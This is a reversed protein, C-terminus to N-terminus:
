RAPFTRRLGDQLGIGAKFGLLAEANDVAYSARLAFLRLEGPTPALAACRGGPLGAKRWAKAVIAATMRFALEGRSFQRLAPQGDAAALAQFYANWSPTEPGVANVVNVAPLPPSAQALRACAKVIIAAVDDVHILAAAGEGSPGFSGWAGCRIRELMKDVWLLSNAGYVIGPRLIIARRTAPQQEVWHRISDECQRKALGYSGPDGQLPADERVIGDAEGYVAISSLFVLNSTGAASMADLLRRCQDHMATVSRYATHVVVSSSTVAASLQDLNDLDCRCERVNPAMRTSPRAQRVGARVVAFERALLGPLSSGIFGTAGTILVCSEDEGSM